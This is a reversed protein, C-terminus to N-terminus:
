PESQHMFWDCINFESTWVYFYNLMKMVAGIRQPFCLYSFRLFVNVLLHPSITKGSERPHWGLPLCSLQLRILVADSESRGDAQVRKVSFSGVAFGVV